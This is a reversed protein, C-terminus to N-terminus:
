RQAKASVVLIPGGSPTLPPKPNLSSGADAAADGLRQMEAKMQEISEYFKGETVHDTM